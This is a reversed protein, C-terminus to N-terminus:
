KEKSNSLPIPFFEVRTSVGGEVDKNGGGIWDDLTWHNKVASQQNSNHNRIEPHL